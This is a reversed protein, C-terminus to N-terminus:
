LFLMALKPMPLFRQRITKLLITGVMFLGIASNNNRNVLSQVSTRNRSAAAGIGIVFKDSLMRGIIINIDDRM